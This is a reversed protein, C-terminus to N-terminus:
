FKYQTKRYRKWTRNDKRTTNEGKHFPCWACNILGENELVIKRARRYTRSNTTTETVKHQSM